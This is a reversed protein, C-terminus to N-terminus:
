DIRRFSVSHISADNDYEQKRRNAERSSTATTIRWNLRVCISILIQIGIRHRCVRTHDCIVIPIVIRGANTGNIAVVAILIRILLGSVFIL